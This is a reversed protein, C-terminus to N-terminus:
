VSMVMILQCYATNQIWSLITMLQPYGHLNTLNLFTERCLEASFLIISVTSSMQWLIIKPSFQKTLRTGADGSKLFRVEVDHETQFKELLQQSISFSDHTMVTLTRPEERQNSSPIANSGCATLVLMVMLISILYILGSTKM